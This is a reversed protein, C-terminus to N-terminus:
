ELLPLKRLHAGELRFIQCFRLFRQEIHEASRIEEVRIGKKRFGGDIHETTELQDSWNGVRQLQALATESLREPVELCREPMDHPETIEDGEVHALVEALPLKAARQRHEVHKQRPRPFGNAAHLMHTEIGIASQRLDGLRLGVPWPHDLDRKRAAVPGLLREVVEVGVEGIRAHGGTAEQSEALFEPGAVAEDFARGIQQMAASERADAVENQGVAHMNKLVVSARGEGSELGVLPRQLRETAIRHRDALEV